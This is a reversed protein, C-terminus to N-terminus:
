GNERAWPFKRDPIAPCPEGGIGTMVGPKANVCSNWGDCRDFAAGGGRLIGSRVTELVVAEVTPDRLLMRASRPGSCDARMVRDRGIWIGNTSTMGVDLGTQTLIATVMATTTSKGNTVTIALIPIRGTEGPPFRTEITPRAIDRREVERMLSLTTPGFAARRVVRQLAQRAAPLGEARPDAEHVRELGTIGQLGAPLLSNSLSFTMRGAMRGVTEDRYAFLLNYIGPRGRVSRMKGRTGPSGADRQLELAMHEVVHGLWTGERLCQVFGGPEALSCGHAHLGPLMDLLADTFGPLRDTPWEELSGLDLQIRIMPTHSFLHPGRYTAIELVRMARDRTPAKDDPM